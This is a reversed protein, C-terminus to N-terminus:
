DDHGHEHEHEGGAPAAAGRAWSVILAKDADTLRADPHLPVYFWLPMEGKRVQEGCGRRKKDAKEPPLSKWESFNVHRRGARVDRALLWSAPAVQSYWPWVTENSHCDYCARRLVARVDAPVDIEGTVPPNNREFRVVQIAVLAVGVGVAIKASRKM